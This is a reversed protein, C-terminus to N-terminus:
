GDRRNGVGGEEIEVVDKVSEVEVKQEILDWVRLQMSMSIAAAVPCSRVGVAGLISLTKSSISLENNNKFLDFLRQLSVV